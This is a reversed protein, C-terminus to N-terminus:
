IPRIETSPLPIIFKGGKKIYKSNELFYDLYNWSLLLAYDPMRKIFEEDSIIPIHSGPTILGIKKENNEAVYSIEGVSLDFYNLLTNGKASAGFAGITEGQNKKEHILTLVDEKIIEVRQAYNQYTELKGIGWEKEMILTKNVIEEIPYIGKKKQLYIRMAPGSAGVSQREFDFIELGFQDIFKFLPTLSLYCLHEHYITDFLISDIVDLLYSAEIIIVGDKAILDSFGQVFNRMDDVHVFVNTATIIKAKGYASVIEKATEPGFFKKIVKFGKQKAIKAVKSPEVGIINIDKTDYAQLLVGDNCGIDVVTEGKKLNFRESVLRVLEEFHMCLIKSASSLYVYEHFIIEPSVVDVLQSLFCDECFYVDLPYRVEDSVKDVTLFSNSPPHEGLSLYQVINKSGCYRCYNNKKYM